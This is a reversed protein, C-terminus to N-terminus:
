IFSTTIFIDVGHAATRQLFLGSFFFYLSCASHQVKFAGWDGILHCRDFCITYCVRIWVLSTLICAVCMALSFLYKPLFSILGVNDHQRQCRRLFALFERFVCLFRVTFARWSYFSLSVKGFVNWIACCMRTHIFKYLQVDSPWGDSPNWM